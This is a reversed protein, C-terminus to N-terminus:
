LYSFLRGPLNAHRPLELAKMLAFIMAQNSTVVPKGLAAEIREIAEVSRMDTCSLVIAQADPHDALLALEYVEDPTLEGQGYNGLPRGIDACRM